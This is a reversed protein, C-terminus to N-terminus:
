CKLAQSNNKTKILKISPCDKYTDIIKLIPGQESLDPCQYGNNPM